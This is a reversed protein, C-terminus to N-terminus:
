KMPILVMLFFSISSVLGYTWAKFKWNGKKNKWNERFAQGFFIMCLLLLLGEFSSYSFNNLMIYMFAFLFFYSFFFTM